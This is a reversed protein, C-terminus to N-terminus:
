MLTGTQPDVTIGSTLEALTELVLLLAGPDLM